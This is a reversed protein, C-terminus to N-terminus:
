VMETMQINIIDGGENKSDPSNDSNNNTNIDTM